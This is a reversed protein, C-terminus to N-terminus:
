LNFFQNIEISYLAQGSSNPYKEQAFLRLNKLHLLRFHSFDQWWSQLAVSAVNYTILNLKLQGRAEMMRKHQGGFERISYGGEKVQRLAATLRGKPLMLIHLRKREDPSNLIYELIAQKMARIYSQFVEQFITKTMSQYKSLLANPILEIAAQMWEKKYKSIEENRFADPNELYSLFRHSSM